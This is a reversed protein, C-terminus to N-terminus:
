KRASIRFKRQLHTVVIALAEDVTKRDSKGFRVGQVEWNPELHSKPTTPQVFVGIFDECGPVVKVAKSIELEIESAIADIRKEDDDFTLDPALSESPLVDDQHEVTGSVVTAAADDPSTSSVDEPDTEASVVASSSNPIEPSPEVGDTESSVTADPAITVHGVGPTDAAEPTSNGEEVLQAVTERREQISPKVGGAFDTTTPASAKSQQRDSNIADLVILALLPVYGLLVILALTV